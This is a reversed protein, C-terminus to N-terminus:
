GKKSMLPRRIVRPSYMWPPPIESLPVQQSRAHRTSKEARISETLRNLYISYVYREAIQEITTSSGRRVSSPIAVRTPFSVHISWPNETALLKLAEGPKSARPLVQDLERSIVATRHELLKRTLGDLGALKSDDIGAQIAVAIVWYEKTTFELLIGLDIVSRHSDAPDPRFQIDSYWVQTTSM